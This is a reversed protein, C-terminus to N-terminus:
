RQMIPLQNYPLQLVILAVATSYVKGVQRQPWAGDEEQLLLLQDRIRPFYAGWEDEGALYLAQSLYMHAYFWHGGRWPNDSITEKAYNLARWAAPNDYEGANFWCCVAASIRRRRASWGPRTRASSTPM